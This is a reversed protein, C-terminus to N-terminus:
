HRIIIKHRPTIAQGQIDLAELLYFGAAVQSVDLKVQSQLRLRQVVRGELSLLQLWAPQAVDPCSVQVYGDAPVPAVKLTPATAVKAKVAILPSYAVTGDLDTQKLRYYTTAAPASLDRYQYRSLSTKNGAGRVFGIQQFEPEQDTRRLVAFGANNHETATHWSLLVQGQERRGTFQILDVPLTTLPLTYSLTAPGSQDAVTLSLTQADADYSYDSTGDVFSPRTEVPLSLTTPQDVSISYETPSVQRWMINARRSSRILTTAGYQLTQGQELFVQQVISDPNLSVFTTLADSTAPEPLGPLTTLVTDPQTFALDRYGPGQVALAAATATSATTVAPAQDTYPVLLSLFQTQAVGDKQVLLTTHKESQNWLREHYNTAKTYASAQGSATVHAKLNVGNKHWTAEHNGLHDSFTGTAATGGELGYGHLQWTFNRVADSQVFDAILFYTNRVSLTKRTITTNQYTTRVQGYALDGQAFPREIFAEADNPTGESGIV